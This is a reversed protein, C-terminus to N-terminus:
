EPHGQDASVGRGLAAGLGHSGGSGPGRVAKTGSIWRRRVTRGEAGGAGDSAGTL